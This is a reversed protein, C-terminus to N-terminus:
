KVVSTSKIGTVTNYSLILKFEENTKRAAVMADWNEKTDFVTTSVITNSNTAVSSSSVFGPQKKLWTGYAASVPKAITHLWSAAAPKVSTVEVTYSM